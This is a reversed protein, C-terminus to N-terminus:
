HILNFIIRTFLGLRLITPYALSRFHILNLCLCNLSSSKEPRMTSSKEADLAGSGLSDGIVYSRATPVLFRKCVQLIYSGGAAAPPMLALCAVLDFGGRSM